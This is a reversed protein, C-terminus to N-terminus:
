LDVIYLFYSQLKYEVVIVLILHCCKSQQLYACLIKKLKLALNCIEIYHMKPKILLKFFTVYAMVAAVFPRLKQLTLYSM